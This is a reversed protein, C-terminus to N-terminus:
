EATYISVTLSCTLSPNIIHRKPLKKECPVANLGSRALHLERAREPLWDCHAIQNMKGACLALWM